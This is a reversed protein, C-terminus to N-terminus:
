MLTVAISEATANIKINRLKGVEKQAYCEYKRCSQNVTVFLAASACQNSGQETRHDHTYKGHYGVVEQYIRYVVVKHRFFSHEASILHDYWGHLVNQLAQHAEIHRKGDHLSQKGHYDCEQYVFM